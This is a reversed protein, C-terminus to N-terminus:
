RLLNAPVSFLRQRGVFEAPHRLARVDELMWMWRGPEYHGFQREPDPVADILAETMQECAVLRSVAVIAGLPLRYPWSLTDSRLLLGGDNEIEYPGLTLRSGRRVAIKTQAAHIALPQGILNAPAPWHRTEIRKAGLAVLSAWPQWLSIAKITDSM